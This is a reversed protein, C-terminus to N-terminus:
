YVFLPDDIYVDFVTVNLYRVAFTSADVRVGNIVSGCVELFCVAVIERKIFCTVVLAVAFFM